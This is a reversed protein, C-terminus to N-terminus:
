DAMQSSGDSQTGEVTTERTILDTPFVQRQMAPTPKEGNLVRVMTEVTADCLEKTRHRITSIRKISHLSVSM